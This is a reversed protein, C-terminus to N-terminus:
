MLQAVALHALRAASKRSQQGQIQEGFRISASIGRLSLLTLLHPVFTMDGWYCVDCNVFGGQAEYRISAPMIPEGNQITAEFLSSRFPLLNSGDSSTGEPFLVVAVNERLAMGIQGNAEATSKTCKRNVFITGAFRALSGFVPWRRVEMKSVFICPGLASFALVDLYSLHNSVILGWTPMTGVSEVSIKWRRLLVRSWRHLWSARTTPSPSGRHNIVLLLFDLGAELITLALALLRYIARSVLTM